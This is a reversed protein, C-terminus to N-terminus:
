STDFGLFVYVCTDTAKDLYLILAHRCRLRLIKVKKNLFTTFTRPVPASAALALSYKWIQMTSSSSVAFAKAFSRRSYMDLEEERNFGEKCCHHMCATQREATTHAFARWALPDIFHVKPVHFPEFPHTSPKDRGSYMNDGHEISGCAFGFSELEM